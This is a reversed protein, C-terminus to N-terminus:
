PASAAFKSEGLLSCRPAPACAPMPLARIIVNKGGAARYMVSVGSQRELAAPDTMSGTIFKYVAIIEDRSTL